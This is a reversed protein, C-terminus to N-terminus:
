TQMETVDPIKTTYDDGGDMKLAAKTKKLQFMIGISCSNAKEEDGVDTMRNQETVIRLVQHFLIM